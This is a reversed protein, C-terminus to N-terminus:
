LQLCCHKTLSPISISQLPPTIPTLLIYPMVPQVPHILPFLHASAGDRNGLSHKLGPRKKKKEELTGSRWGEAKVDCRVRVKTRGHGRKDTTGELEHTASACAPDYCWLVSTLSKQTKLWANGCGSNRETHIWGTWMMVTAKAKHPVFVFIYINPNSYKPSGSPFCQQTFCLTRDTTLM